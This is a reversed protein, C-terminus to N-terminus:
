FRVWQDSLRFRLTKVYIAALPSLMAEQTLDRLEADLSPLDADEFFARRYITYVARSCDLDGRIDSQLVSPSVSTQFPVTVYAKLLGHNVLDRIYLDLVSGFKWQNSMLRTYKDVSQRNLFFSSTCAFATDKLDILAIRRTQQFNVMIESLKCFVPVNDTPVHIDTFVLDWGSFRADAEALLADFKSVANKVLVTDDEIFHLHVHSERSAELLKDHSLWIGLNGPDLTTQYQEAVARGDVGEIRQYRAAAGIEVLHRTLARRREESRALNVYFGQYM